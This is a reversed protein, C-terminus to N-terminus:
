FEDILNQVTTLHKVPEWTASSKSWGEWQVKYEPTGKQSARKGIIRQVKYLNSM